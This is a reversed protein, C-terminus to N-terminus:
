GWGGDGAGGGGAGGGSGAGAGGTGGRTGSESRVRGARCIRLGANLMIEVDADDTATLPVAASLTPMVATVQVFEVPEEPLAEPVALHDACTGNSTPVLTTMM